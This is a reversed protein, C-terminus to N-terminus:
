RGDGHEEGRDQREAWPPTCHLPYGERSDSHVWSKSTTLFITQFHHWMAELPNDYLAMCSRGQCSPCKRLGQRRRLAVACWATCFGLSCLSVVSLCGPQCSWSIDWGIALMLQWCTFLSAELHSWGVAILNGRTPSKGWRLGWVHHHLTLANGRHELWIWSWYFAFRKKKATLNQSLQDCLLLLCFVGLCRCWVSLSSFSGSCASQLNSGQDPVDHSLIANSCKRSWM